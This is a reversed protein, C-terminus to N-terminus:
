RIITNSRLDRISSPAKANGVRGPAYVVHNGFYRRASVQSTAPPLGQPNASTSVIPGAFADCLEIVGKHASVRVAVTDHQGSIEPPVRGKHEVLWTVHGPWSQRLVHHQSLPLDWLLFDLQRIDSAVLILGKSWHRQKLRLIKQVAETVFPDCGLGWVAETPYAIVEGIRLADRCRRIKPRAISM